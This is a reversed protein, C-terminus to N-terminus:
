FDSDLLLSFYRISNIKAEVICIFLHRGNRRHFTGRIILSATSPIRLFSSCEASLPHPHIRDTVCTSDFPFSCAHFIKM